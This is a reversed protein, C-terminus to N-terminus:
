SQSCRSISWDSNNFYFVFAYLPLEGNNTIKMGYIDDENVVLDVVGAKILNPGDPKRTRTDGDLLKTFEVEVTNKIFQASGVRRLHWYYHAAARIIPSVEDINPLVRRPMRHLGHVTVNPDKIDFVIHDNEFAIGLDPMKGQKLDEDTLMNIQQRANVQMGTAIAQFIPLPKQDFPVYLSLDAQKGARIQLAFAQGEISFKCDTPSFDLATSFPGPASAVMTGLPDTTLYVHKDKYIAFTAGETVGHATGADMTYRENSERVGYLQRDQSPAKGDFVIRNRHIGECQPNQRSIVICLLLCGYELPLIHHKRLCFPFANSLIPIRSKIPASTLFRAWCHGQSIAGEKHRKPRKRRVARPWSCMLALAVRASGWQFVREGPAEVVWSPNIKTPLYICARRWSSAVCLAM